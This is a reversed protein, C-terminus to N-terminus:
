KDNCRGVDGTFYLRAPGPAVADFDNGVFVNLEGLRGVDQAAHSNLVYLFGSLREVLQGVLAHGRILESTQPEFVGVRM